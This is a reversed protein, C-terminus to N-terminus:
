CSVTQTITANTAASTGNKTSITSTAGKGGNMDRVSVATSTTKNTSALAATSKDVLFGVLLFRLGHTIKKGCHRLKGPFVLAHGRQIHVTADLCEFYTGGGDYDVGCGNSLAILFTWESKDTHMDLKQREKRTVDYKVIHPERDDLQLLIDTDTEDSTATTTATNSTNSADAASITVGDATSPSNNNDNNKFKNTISCVTSHVPDFSAYALTPYERCGLTQKAYTYAAYQGKCAQETTTVLEDCQDPTMGVDIVYIHHEESVTVWDLVDRKPPAAMTSPTFINRGNNTKISDTTPDTKSSNSNDVGSGIGCTGGTGSSSAKKKKNNDNNNKSKTTSIYVKTSAPSTTATNNSSTLFPISKKQGADGDANNNPLVDGSVVALKGVNDTTASTVSAGVVNKTKNMMMMTTTTPTAASITTDDSPDLLQQQQCIPTINGPRRRSPCQEQNKVRRRQQQQRRRRQKTSASPFENDNNDGYVTSYEEEDITSQSYFSSSSSDDDYDDEDNMLLANEPLIIIANNNNNDYINNNNNNDCRRILLKTPCKSHITKFITTEFDVAIMIQSDDDKEGDEDQNNIYLEDDDDEDEVEDYYDVEEEEVVVIDISNNGNNDIIEEEIEIVNKCHVSGDQQQQQQQQQKVKEKEKEAEYSEAIKRRRGGGSGGVNKGGLLAIFKNGPKNNISNKNNNNNVAAVNEYLLHNQGKTMRVTDDNEKENKNNKPINSFCSENGINNTRSTSITTYRRHRFHTTTTHILERMLDYMIPDISDSRKMPKTMKTKKMKGREIDVVHICDSSCTQGM